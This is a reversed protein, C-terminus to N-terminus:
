VAAGQRRSLLSDIARLVSPRAENAVEHERLRDLDARELDPLMAIVEEAQLDAYEPAPAPTPPAAATRQPRPRPRPKPAPREEGAAVNQPPPPAANAARVSPSYRLFEELQREYRYGEANARQLPALRQHERLKLVAERTTYRYRFGTAKFRRNDLGRGFRLQRLMEPSFPVGLRRLAAAALGTGWPPLIPALQKGLLDIVESLVLVGDAACNFSRFLV